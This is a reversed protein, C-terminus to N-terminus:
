GARLGDLWRAVHSTAVVIVRDGGPRDPAIEGAAARVALDECLLEIGPRERAVLRAAIANM